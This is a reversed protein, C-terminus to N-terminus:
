LECKLFWLFVRWCEDIANPSSQRRSYFDNSSGLVIISAGSRKKHCSKSSRFKTLGWSTADCDKGWFISDSNLLAEKTYWGFSPLISHICPPLNACWTRGSTCTISATHFIEDPPGISFCEFQHNTSMLNQSNQFLLRTRPPISILKKSHKQHFRNKSHCHCVMQRGFDYVSTTTVVTPWHFTQVHFRFCLARNQSWYLQRRTVASQRTYFRPTFAGNM